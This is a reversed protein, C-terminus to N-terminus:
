IIVSIFRWEFQLSRVTIHILKNCLDLRDQFRIFDNLNYQIM